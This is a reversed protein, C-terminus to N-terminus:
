ADPRASAAVREYFSALLLTALPFTILLGVCVLVTGALVLMFWLVGVVAMQLRLGSTAAFSANIGAFIPLKHDIVFFKTLGSSIAWLIGPVICLMLGLATLGQVLLDAVLVPALLDDARFIDAAEVAGGRLATLSMRMLGAYTWQSAAATMAGLAWELGLALTPDLHGEAQLYVTGALLVPGPAIVLLSLILGGAFAGANDWFVGWAEKLLAGIEIERASSGVRTTM